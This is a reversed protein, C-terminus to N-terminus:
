GNDAGRLIDEGEQRKAKAWLAGIGFVFVLGLLTTIALPPIQLFLAAVEILSGMLGRLSEVTKSRYPLFLSAMIVFGIILVRHAKKKM